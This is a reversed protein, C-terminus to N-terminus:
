KRWLMESQSDCSFKSASSDYSTGKQCTPLPFKISDTGTTQVTAACARVGGRLNDRVGGRFKRTAGLRCAEYTGRRVRSQRATLKECWAWCM